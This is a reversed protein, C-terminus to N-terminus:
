AYRPGARVEKGKARLQITKQEPHQVFDAIRLQAALEKNGVGANFAGEKIQVTMEAHSFVVM